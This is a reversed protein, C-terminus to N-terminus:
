MRYGAFWTFVDDPRGQLYSNIQQQFTNHDVTNLKVGIGSAKQFKNLVAAMAKKPVPDSYNSGFSVTGAGVQSARRVAGLAGPASASALAALGAGGSVLLKRRSLQSSSHNEDTM